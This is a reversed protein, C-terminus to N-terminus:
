RQGPLEVQIETVKSRNVTDIVTVMNDDENAAYIYRGEPGLALLEPDPGSPLSHTVQLTELDM